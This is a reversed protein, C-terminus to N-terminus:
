RLGRATTPKFEVGRAWTWDSGAPVVVKAAHYFGNAGRQPCRGSSQQSVQSQFTIPDSPKVKAGAAVTASSSNTLPKIWEISARQGDFLALASLEFTAEVNPGTFGAINHHSGMAAFYLAGGPWYPDDFSISYDTDLNGTLDDLSASLAVASALVEIGITDSCDWYTAQGLEYNFFLVTDALSSVTDNSAFACAFLKNKPDIVTSMAYWHQRNSRELFWRGFRENDIATPQSAFDWMYWGDEALFFCLRGFQILSSPEICGINEVLKDIQMIVDGGVFLVRRICKDQFVYLSGGAVAFGTINGGDAFEQEDSLGVGATWGESNGIASWKIAMGSSEPAGLFVFEGYTALFKAKGPSGPLDAFAVEATSADLYQIPDLGNTALVRDGYQGFRWRTTTTATTYGGGKSWDAWTKPLQLKYLKDSDGGFMHAVNNIDRVGVIGLCRSGMAGAGAAEGVTVLPQQLPRYGQLGPLCGRADRLHPAGGTDPLDPAWLGFEVSPM